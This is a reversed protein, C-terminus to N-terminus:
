LGACLEVRHYSGLCVSVQCAMVGDHHPQWDQVGALSDFHPIM